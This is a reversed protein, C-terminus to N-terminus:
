KAEICADLSKKSNNLISPTMEPSIEDWAKAFDLPNLNSLDSPWVDKTWSDPLNTECRQMTKATPQRGIKSFPGITTRQMNKPGLIVTAELIQERNKSSCAQDQGSGFNRGIGDRIRFISKKLSLLEKSGQCYNGNTRHM